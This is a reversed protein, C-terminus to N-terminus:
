VLCENILNSMTTYWECTPHTNDWMAIEWKNYAWAFDLVPRNKEQWKKIIKENLETLRSHNDEWICTCLVPQIWVEEMWKSRQEIDSLTQKNDKTNAWFYFMFSKVDPHNNKYNVM